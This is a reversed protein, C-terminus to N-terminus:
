GVLFFAVSVKLAKKVNGEMTGYPKRQPIRLLYLIEELSDQFPLLITEFGILTFTLLAHILILLWYGTHDEHKHKCPNGEKFSTRRNQSGQHRSFLSSCKCTIYAFRGLWGFSTSFINPCVCPGCFNSKSTQKYTWSNIHLFQYSYWAPRQTGSHSFVWTLLFFSLGLLPCYNWVNRCGLFWLKWLDLIHILDFGVKLHDNKPLCHVRCRGSREPDKGNFCFIFHTPKLSSRRTSPAISVNFFLKHSIIASSLPFAMVPWRSVPSPLQYNCLPKPAGWGSFGIQFKKSPNQITTSTSNRCHGSSLAFAYPTPHSINPM